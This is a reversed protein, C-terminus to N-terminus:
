LSELYAILALKDDLSLNECTQMHGQDGFALETTTPRQHDICFLDELSSVSGNHLFRDFTWLGNMRPAKIAHTLTDVLDPGNLADPIGDLNKDNWYKMAPDTGIEEFSFVRTSSHLPGNHCSLCGRQEFLLKGSAVLAPNPPSPNEPAKLSLIYRKLPLLREATYKGEPGLSLAVFGRLFDDISKAGGTLGLLASHVGNLEVLQEPTTLQWLSLIKSVTHVDDDNGVPPALFDQNGTKGWSAYMAQVKASLFPTPLADSLLAPLLQIMRLGLALASSKTNFEEILPALVARADPHFISPSQIFPLLAMSPFSVMSLIHLGYDYHHNPMGVSYRGDRTKAFHCSACGFALSDIEDNPGMPEGRPMGLPLQTESYPDLVMGLKEFGPGITDSLTSVLFEPIISPVGLLDFGEYFFMYKGCMLLLYDSAAEPDAYYRDCAGRIMGHELVTELDRSIDTLFLEDEPKFLAQVSLDETMTLQCFGLGNCDGTWGAFEYGPEATAILELKQDLSYLYCNSISEACMNDSVISPTVSGGDSSTFTLERQVNCATLLVFVILWAPVVSFSHNSWSM